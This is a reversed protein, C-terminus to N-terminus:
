PLYVTPFFGWLFENPCQGWESRLLMCHWTFATLDLVTMQPPFLVKAEVEVGLDLEPSLSGGDLRISVWLIVPPGPIAAVVWPSEEQVSSSNWQTPQPWFTAFVGSARLCTLCLTLLSISSQLLSIPNQFDMQIQYHIAYWCRYPLLFWAPYM